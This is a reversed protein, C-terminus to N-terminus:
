EFHQENTVVNTLCGLVGHIMTDLESIDSLARFQDNQRRSDTHPSDASPLAFDATQPSGGRRVSIAKTLQGHITLEEDAAYSAPM